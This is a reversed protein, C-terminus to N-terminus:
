ITFNSFLTPLYDKVAGVAADFAGTPNSAVYDGVTKMGDPSFDAHAAEYVVDGWQSMAVGALYGPLDGTEAGKSRVAGALTDYALHSGEQLKDGPNLRGDFAIAAGDAFPM